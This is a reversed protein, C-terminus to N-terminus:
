LGHVMGSAPIPDQGWLPPLAPLMDAPRAPRHWLIRRCRWKLRELSRRLIGEVEGRIPETIVGATYYHVAAVGGASLAEAAGAIIGAIVDMKMTSVNTGSTFVQAVQEGNELLRWDAKTAGAECIIIKM